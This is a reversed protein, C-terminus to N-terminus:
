FVGKVGRDASGRASCIFTTHVNLYPLCNYLNNACYLTRRTRGAVVSLGTARHSTVRSHTACAARSPTLTACGITEHLKGRHRADLSAIWLLFPAEGQFTHPCMVSKLVGTQWMQRVIKITDLSTAARSGVSCRELLCVTKRAFSKM